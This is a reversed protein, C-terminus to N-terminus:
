CFKLGNPFVDPKRSLLGCAVLEPWFVADTGGGVPREQQRTALQTFAWWISFFHKAQSSFGDWLGKTRFRSWFHVQAADVRPNNEGPKVEIVDPDGITSLIKGAEEESGQHRTRPPSSFDKGSRLCRDTM